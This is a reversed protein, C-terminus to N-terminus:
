NVQTVGFVRGKTAWNIKYDINKSMFNELTAAPKSTNVEFVDKLDMVNLAYKYGELTGVPL